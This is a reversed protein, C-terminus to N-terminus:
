MGKTYPIIQRHTFQRMMTIGTFLSVFYTVYIHFSFSQSLQRIVKNAWNFIYKNFNVKQLLVTYTGEMYRIIQHHMCSMM